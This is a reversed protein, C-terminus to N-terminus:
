IERHPGLSYRFLAVASAHAPLQEGPVLFVEGGHTLTEIAAANLIDEANPAATLSAIECGPGAAERALFLRWVRGAASAKLIEDLALSWRDGPAYEEMEMLHRAAEQAQEAAIAKRALDLLDGAPMLETSGRLTAAMTQPYTNEKRFAHVVRESGAVVLPLGIDQLYSHLGRDVMMCFFQLRREENASSIGFSIANAYRQTRDNGKPTRGPEQTEMTAIEDVTYPVGRPLPVESMKGNWCRLLSVRNGSLDLVLFERPETLWPLMPKIYFRNGVVVTEPVSGPVEFFFFESCDLFLAIGSKRPEALTPENAMALLPAVLHAIKHHTWGEALLQHFVLDVANKVRVHNPRVEGDLSFGPLLVSIAPPSAQGM